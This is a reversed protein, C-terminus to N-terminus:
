MPIRIAIERQGTVLWNAVISRDFSDGQEPAPYGVVSAARLLAKLTLLEPDAPGVGLGLLCGTTMAMKLAV